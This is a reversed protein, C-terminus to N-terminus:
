QLRWAIGDGHGDSQVIHRGPTANAGLATGSGHVLFVAAGRFNCSAVLGADGPPM